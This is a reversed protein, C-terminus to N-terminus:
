VETIGFFCVNERVPAGSGDASYAIGGILVLAGGLSIPSLIRGCIAMRSLRQKATPATEAPACSERFQQVM